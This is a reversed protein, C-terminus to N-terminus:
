RAKYVCIHVYISTNTYIQIPTHIPVCRYGLDIPYNGISPAMSYMFFSLVAISASVLNGNDNISFHSIQAGASVKQTFIDSNRHIKKIQESM